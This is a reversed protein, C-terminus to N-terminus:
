ARHYGYLDEQTGNVWLQHGDPTDVLLTRNYAEDVVTAGVGAETLQAAVADLDGSHELTLELAVSPSRHWAVQGGGDALFDKWTGSDSALRPTLGLGTLIATPEEPTPSYWLPMIAVPTRGSSLTPTPSHEVASSVTIATGDTAEITSNTVTAPAKATTLIAEPDPVLVTLALSGPTAGASARRITLLGSGAYHGPTGTATLGLLPATRQWWTPDSTTYTAHVTTM